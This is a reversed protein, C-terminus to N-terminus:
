AALTTYVVIRQDYNQTRRDFTGGCTILNLGIGEPAAFIRELPAEDFRYVVTETVKFRREMGDDSIVVVDDGPKLDRLRWFVAPGTKSDLHGAMVASGVEGPRAGLKYWAVSDYSKPVDM